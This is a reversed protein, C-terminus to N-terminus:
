FIIGYYWIPLRNAVVPVGERAAKAIYGRMAYAVYFALPPTAEDRPARM